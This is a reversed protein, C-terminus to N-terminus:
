PAPRGWNPPQMARLPGPLLANVAALYGAYARGPAFTDARAPARARLDLRVDERELLRLGRAFAERDNLACLLGYPARVLGRVQGELDPAGLIEAPGAPCDTHLCPLGLALAEALANPFGEASSASIYALSRAMIGHPNSVFGLFHIRDKVGLEGGLRLLAERESGEGLIVLDAQPAAAAYARLLFPYNKNATLRGVAVFYRDPLDRNPGALGAQRVSHLQLPNHVVRLKGPPVGYNWALDSAVGRSVAVIGDSQPYLLRVLGQSFISRLGGARLHQTTHVRESLLVKSRSMRGVLVAACNARTLFSLVVNPRLRQVHRHLLQASALLDGQAGLVTVPLNAPPRNRVPRDDLVALELAGPPFAAGLARTVDAFVREAGGGELSNIVCLLVPARARGQVGAEQQLAIASM